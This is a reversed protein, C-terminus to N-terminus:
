WPEKENTYGKNIIEYAKYGMNYKPNKQKGQSTSSSKSQKTSKTGSNAKQASNQKSNNKGGSNKKSDKQKAISKSSSKKEKANKSPLMDIINVGTKLRMKRLLYLNHLADKDKGFALAQIYLKEARDYRKLKVACNGMNYFINQKIKPNSSKIQTYYNLATKYHGAEYYATATNYYSEVSPTVKEFLKAAKLYNKNKYSANAEKIYAFDILSANVNHTVLLLSFAGLLLRPLKTIASIFLLIAVTLPIVFYESYSKIHINEQKTSQQSIDRSLKEIIQLSTLEYYKGGSLRALEQLSPNIKSVVISSYIDKIYKGNKKLAAGKKTGTAVIFLKINNQKVIKLLQAINHEDGGDSFLILNKQKLSIKSITEFLKYLNTSKTLIYEPKLSELALISISSDSTPPSILLPNSTFAFLTFRDKPHLSFLKKIAEKAMIYRSPKIDDAQMSYSADLAIIYDSSDFKEDVIANEYAPRAMAMFMFVLSLYLLKTSGNPNAHQKYIFFIPILGFLVWANLLTM